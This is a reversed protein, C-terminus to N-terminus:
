KYKKGKHTIWGEEHWKKPDHHTWHIVGGKDNWEYEGKIMVDDNVKIPVRPALDINHAILVSTDQVNVLFRQHRDGVVDDALIKYVKASVEVVKGSIRNNVLEKFHNNTKQNQPSDEFNTVEEISSFAYVIIVVILVIGQKWNVNKM